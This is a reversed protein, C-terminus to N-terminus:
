NWLPRNIKQAMGSTEFKQTWHLFLSSIVVAILEGVFTDLLFHQLLYVRSWATLVALIFLVISLKKSTGYYALCLALAFAQATHGSPFSHYKHIELGPITYLPETIHLTPRVIDYFFWHKLIQVIASTSLLAGTTILAIRINFFLLISVLLYVALLGDGLYTAYYFLTDLLPHHYHNLATEIVGKPYLLVLCGILSFYIASCAYFYPIKSYLTKM